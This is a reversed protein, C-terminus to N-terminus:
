RQQGPFATPRSSSYTVSTPAAPRRRSVTIPGDTGDCQARQVATSTVVAIDEAELASRAEEAAFPEGLAEGASDAGIAIVNFQEM